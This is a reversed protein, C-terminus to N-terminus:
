KWRYKGFTGKLGFYIFYPIYFIEALPFVQLLKLMKVRKLFLLLLIFEPMVKMLILILFHYFNLIGSIFALFAISFSLYYVFVILTLLKISLPYYKWKSGRRTELQFQEGVENRDWSKVAAAPSFLFSYKRVRKAMKQLLLDDDGSPIHGIGKFGGSAFFLSKRYGMNRATCTLGWGLGFSGATVAFISARELNKLLSVLKNKLLLPSYGAWFDVKEGWNRNIEQLWYSGPVCDADTFVLHEYSAALIGQYIAGKKGILIPDEKKITIFRLNSFKVLYEEVIEKTRDTSRDDIVIIEYKDEPYKLRSLSNLLVSIHKEENRAAIIISLEKYNESGTAKLRLIGASFLLILISYVAAFIILLTFM